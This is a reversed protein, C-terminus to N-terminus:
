FGFLRAPNDTLITRRVDADPAWRPLLNLIRGDDPQRLPLVTGFPRPPEDKGSNPHPWNTAWLVREPNAAILAKAIPDLDEFDPTLKSALYPASLKVFVRGSRLWDLVLHFAPEGIGDPAKFGAFHDLSVPVPCSEVLDRVAELMAPRAYMQIHWGRRTRVINMATQFRDRAIAPDAQGITEMNVRVGRIGARDMEDLAESPTRADIVAIGRANAGLQRLADLTCANDTGYITPQVIVVRTLHLARLMAQIEPVLAPPPTYTRTSAMPFQAADGFIHTLCDCAGEPVAFNVATKPQAAPAIGPAMVNGRTHM